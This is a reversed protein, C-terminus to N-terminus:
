VVLYHTVAIIMSSVGVNTKDDIRSSDTGVGPSVRACPDGYSKMGGGRITPIKGSSPPPLSKALTLHSSLRASTM